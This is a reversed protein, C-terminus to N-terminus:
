PHLILFIDYNSVIAIKSEFVIRSLYFFSECYTITTVKGIYTNPIHMEMVSASVIRM